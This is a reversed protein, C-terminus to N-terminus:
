QNIFADIGSKIGGAAVTANAPNHAFNEQSGSLRAVEIIAATMRTVTPKLVADATGDTLIWASLGTASSVNTQLDSALTQSDAKATTYIGELGPLFSRPANFHVSVYINSHSKNAIAGREHFTPCSTADTKTLSVTYGAGSLIPALSNSVAVTLDDEHLFGAPPNSAPYNTVGVAGVPQHVSACDYGHGPDITVSSALRVASPPGELSFWLFGGDNLDQTFNVTGTNANQVTFSTGPGAYSGGNAGDGDFGFIGNGSLNIASVTAGSQNLVGVLTDDSGDYPGVNPDTQFILRGTPTITILVACSSSYGIAPCQGNAWSRSPSAVAVIFGLLLFLRLIAQYSKM